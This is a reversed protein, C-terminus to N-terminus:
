AKRHLSVNKFITMSVGLGAVKFPIKFNFVLQKGDERERERQKARIQRALVTEGSSGKVLWSLCFARKKRRHMEVVCAVCASHERDRGIVRGDMGKRTFYRKVSLLPTYWIAYSGCM